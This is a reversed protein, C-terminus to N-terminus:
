LALRRSAHRREGKPAKFKSPLPADPTDWAQVEVEYGAEDTALAPLTLEQGDVLAEWVAQVRGKPYVSVATRKGPHKWKLKGNPGSPAELSPLALLKPKWQGGARLGALEAVSENGAADRASVALCQTFGSVAFVPVALPWQGDGGALPVQMGSPHAIAVVAGGPTLGDPAIPSPTLTGTPAQMAVTLAAGGGAPVESAGLTPESVQLVRFRPVSELALGSHVVIVGATDTDPVTFAFAGNADTRDYVVTGAADAYVITAGAAAPVTGGQLALTDSASEPASLPALSFAYPPGATQSAYGPLSVTLAAGAPVGSLAFSGDAGTVVAGAAGAVQAGSLPSGAADTVRGLAVSPGAGRGGGSPAPVASAVAGPANVPTDGPAQVPSEGRPLVPVAGPEALADLGWAAGTLGGATPAQCASLLATGLLASLCAAFVTKRRTM